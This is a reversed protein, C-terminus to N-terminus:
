QGTLAQMDKRFQDVWKKGDELNDFDPINLGRCRLLNTSLSLQGAVGLFLNRFREIPTFNANTEKGTKPDIYVGETVQLIQKQSELTLQYWAMLSLKDFDSKHFAQEVEKTGGCIEQAKIEDAIRFPRYTLPLGCLKFEVEKPTIESLNM